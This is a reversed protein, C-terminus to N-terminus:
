DEVLHPPREPGFGTESRAAEKYIEEAGYALMAIPIRESDLCCLVLLLRFAAPNGRQLSKFIPSFMGDVSKEQHLALENTWGFVNAEKSNMLEILTKADCRTERMYSAVQEVRSLHGRLSSVVTKIEEQEKAYLDATKGEVVSDFLKRSCESQLQQLEIVGHIQGASRAIFRADIESRTTILIKGSKAQGPLIAQLREEVEKQVIDVILLWPQESGEKDFWSRVWSLKTDLTSTAHKDNCLRNAIDAYSQELKAISSANVYMIYNSHKGYGDFGYKLAVQTKGMGALGHIVCRAPMGDYKRSLAESIRQIM